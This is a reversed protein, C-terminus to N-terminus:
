VGGTYPGGLNREMASRPDPPPPEEAPETLTGHPGQFARVVGDPLGVKM